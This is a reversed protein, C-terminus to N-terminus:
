RRKHEAIARQADRDATKRKLDERKDAVQKGKGVGIEVKIKGRKLYLKLPVLTRGKISVLGNLRDIEKKHLLLKRPRLPDHNNRNGQSYESVHMGQLLAEGCDDIRDLSLQGGFTGVEFLEVCEECGQM